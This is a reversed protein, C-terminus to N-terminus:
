FDAFQQNTINEAIELIQDKVTNRTVPLDKIRQM